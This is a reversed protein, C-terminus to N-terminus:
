PMVGEKLEWVQKDFYNQPQLQCKSCIALFVDMAPVHGNQIRSFTSASIGTAAEIERLSETKTKLRVDSMFMATNFVYEVRQKKNISM